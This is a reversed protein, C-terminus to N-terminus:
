DQATPRTFQPSLQPLRACIGPPAAPFSPTQGWLLLGVIAHLLLCHGAYARRKLIRPSVPGTPWYALLGSSGCVSERVIAVIAVLSLASNVQFLLYFVWEDDNQIVTHFIVMVIM